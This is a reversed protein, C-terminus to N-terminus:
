WSPTHPIAPTPAIEKCTNEIYMLTNNLDNFIQSDSYRKLIINNEIIFKEKRQDKEFVKEETHTLGDIEIALKLKPCYFDVIYNGIDHQRRFRFGLRDNKIYKWLLAESKTMRGRLKFRFEQFKRKNHLKTMVEAVGGAEEQFSSSKGAELRSM